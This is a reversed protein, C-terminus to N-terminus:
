SIWNTRDATVTWKGNELIVTFVEGSACLGGCHYGGDVEVENNKLWRIENASFIIGPQKTKRDIVWGGDPKKTQRADSMKKVTRPIGQFRRLFEVSPDKGNVSVFYIRSNLHKAVCKDLPEKADREMKDGSSAWGDMQYRIVTERITDEETARSPEEAANNNGAAFAIGGLVIAM